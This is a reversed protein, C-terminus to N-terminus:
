RISKVTLDLTSPQAEIVTLKTAQPVLQELVKPDSWGDTAAGDIAILYYDGPPLHEFSYAGTRTALASKIVRPNSGLGSWRRPDVPFALVAATPSADGRADKVTGSVKSRQDTYIVVVKADSRLDFAKDTVNVDNITVSKVVWGNLEPPRAIYRGAEALTSFTGATRDVTQGTFQGDENFATEFVVNGDLLRSTAPLESQGRLEVRGEVHLPALVSLTLDAVDTTGVSVHQSLWWAPRGQQVALPSLRSANKMVYEGPPVGILTIRGSADSMGSVTEFGPDGVDAAADGVLRVAMPPPASGDPAVLRGSVRVSASPRLSITIGTREEGSELPILTAAAATM